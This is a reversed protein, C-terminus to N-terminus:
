TVSKVLRLVTIESRAGIRLPPGWYGTGQNVYIWTNDHKHLGSMYPQALRTLFQWPILQGGHTHGSLQLHYGVKAAETISRPQHALLIKLSDNKIGQIAKEPDSKHEPIFGGGSVDTVGALVIKDNGKQIIRNENNLVDFGLQRAKDCWPLVGSYYEHNGTVFFKGFPAQLDGLPEVDANLNEVTGDVLDGTFVIMDGKLEQIQRTVTKVFSNKITPGVHLDSFQVIRFGDFEDPLNRLPVDINVIESKRRAEWFGYGTGAVALGVIGLNISQIIFQRRQQDVPEEMTETNPYNKNFFQYTKNIGAGVGWGIDRFLILLFIISMFGLWSFGIWGLIIEWSKGFGSFRSIMAFFPSLFMIGFVGWYLIKLGPSFTFASILRLGIYSHLSLLVIFGVILFTM